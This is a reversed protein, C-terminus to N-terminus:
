NGGGFYIAVVFLLLLLTLMINSAALIFATAGLAQSGSAAAAIPRFIQNVLVTEPTALPHNQGQNAQVQAQNAPPAVIGAPNAQMQVQLVGAQQQARAIQYPTMRRVYATDYRVCKYFRQGAKSGTRAVNTELDAGCFPCRILDLPFDAPVPLSSSSSASM